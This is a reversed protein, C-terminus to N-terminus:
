VCTFEYMWILTFYVSVTSGNLVRRWFAVVVGEAFGCLVLLNMGMEFVSVYVAPQVSGGGIAWEDVTTGDASFLIIASAATLTATMLLSVLGKWPFRPWAGPKWPQRLHRATRFCQKQPANSAITTLTHTEYAPTPTETTDKAERFHTSNAWAVPEHYLTTTGERNSVLRSRFGPSSPPSQNSATYTPISHTPTYIPNCHPTAFHRLGYIRPDFDEYHATPAAQSLMIAADDDKSEAREHGFESSGQSAMQYPPKDDM